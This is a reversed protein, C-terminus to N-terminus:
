GPAGMSEVAYHLVSTGKARFGKGTLDTSPIINRENSDRLGCKQGRRQTAELVLAEPKRRSALRERSFRGNQKTCVCGAATETTLAMDGGNSPCWYVGFKPRRVM